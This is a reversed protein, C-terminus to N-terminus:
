RNRRWWDEALLLGIVSMADPVEGRRAMEVAKQLPVAKLQLLETGDPAAPVPELDQAIFLYGREASICNSLHIEGGLADWRGARLGAEEQLERKAADLPDEGSDAGGQVIEWSYMDTTYRYQGVLQVDGEPTLAIVGTAARTEVVGYIGEEGDPRVVADERVRMWPNRYVERTRLTKWPNSETV